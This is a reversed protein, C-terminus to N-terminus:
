ESQEDPNGFKDIEAYNREQEKIKETTNSKVSEEYMSLQKNLLRITKRMATNEVVYTKNLKELEFMRRKMATYTEKTAYQVHVYTVKIFEDDNYYSAHQEVEKQTYSEVGDVYIERGRDQLKSKEIIIFFEVQHIKFFMKRVIEDIFPLTGIWLKFIAIPSALLKEVINYQYEIPEYYYLIVFRRHDESKFDENWSKFKPNNVMSHTLERYSDIKGVDIEEGDTKAFVLSKQYHDYNLAVDPNQDIQGM